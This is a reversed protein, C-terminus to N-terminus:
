PQHYKVTVRRTTYGQHILKKQEIKLIAFPLNSKFLKGDIFLDGQKQTVKRDTYGARDRGFKTNEDMILFIFFGVFSLVQANSRHSLRKM